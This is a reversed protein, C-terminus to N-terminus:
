SPQCLKRGKLLLNLDRFDHCCHPFGRMSRTRSVDHISLAFIVTRQSRMTVHLGLAAHTLYFSHRGRAPARKTM